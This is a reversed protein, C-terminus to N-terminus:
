DNSIWQGSTPAVVGLQCEGNCSHLGRAGDPQRELSSAVISDCALSEVSRLGCGPSRLHDAAPTLQVVRADPRDRANGLATLGRRRRPGAGLPRYHSGPRHHDPSNSGNQAEWLAPEVSRGRSRFCLGRGERWPRRPGPAFRPGKMARRELGRIINTDLVMVAEPSLETAGKSALRQRLPHADDLEM